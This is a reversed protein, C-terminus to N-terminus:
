KKLQEMIYTSMPFSANRARQVGIFFEEKATLKWGYKNLYVDDYYRFGLKIMEQDRKEDGYPPGQFAEKFVLLSQLYENHSYALLAKHQYIQVIGAAQLAWKEQFGFAKATAGFNFNGFDEYQPGQRKYDWLGTPKVLEIFWSPNFSTRAQTINADINVDPPHEPIIIPPLNPNIYGEIADQQSTMGYYARRLKNELAYFLGIELLMESLLDLTRAKNEEIEGDPGNPM